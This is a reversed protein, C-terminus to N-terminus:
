FDQLHNVTGRISIDAPFEGVVYHSFKRLVRLDEAPFTKGMLFAVCILKPKLANKRAYRGV